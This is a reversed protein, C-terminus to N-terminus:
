SKLALIAPDLSAYLTFYIETVEQPYLWHGSPTKGDMSYYNEFARVRRFVDPEGSHYYMPGTGVAAASDTNWLIDVVGEATLHDAWI